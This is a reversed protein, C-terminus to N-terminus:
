QAVQEIVPMQAIGMDDGMVVTACHRQAGVQEV